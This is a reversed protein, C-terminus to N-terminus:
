DNCCCAVSLKSSLYLLCIHDDFALLFLFRYKRWTMEYGTMVLFCTKKDKRGFVGLCGVAVVGSVLPGLGRAM